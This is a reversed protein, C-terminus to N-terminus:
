GITAKYAKCACVYPATVICNNSSVSLLFATGAMSRNAYTFNNIKTLTGGSCTAGDLRTYSVSSTSWTYLILLLKNGNQGTITHTTVGTDTPTTYVLDYGGVSPEQSYAYGGSSMNVIGSNFAAGSASPTVNQPQSVIAYGNATPNVPTNATLAAPMSDSPTIPTPTVGGGSNSGCRYMAM